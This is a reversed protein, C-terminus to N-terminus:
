SQEYSGTQDTSALLLSLYDDPPMPRYLYYGKASHCGWSKLMDLQEQTEIGEATAHTHLDRSLHILSRCLTQHTENNTLDSVFLRDIKIEEPALRNINQMSSYGAGFDDISLSFGAARLLSANEVAQGRDSIAATETIELVLRRPSIGYERCLDILGLAFNQQLLDRASINVALTTDQLAETHQQMWSLVSHLILQTLKYILGVNEALPIFDAPSVMGLTPHQWRLLVEGSNIKESALEVKPQIVFTFGNNKIAKSMEAVLMLQSHQHLQLDPQYQSWLHNSRWNARAALQAHQYLTTIDLRNLCGSAVGISFLQQFEIQELHITRNLVPELHEIIEQPRSTQRCLFILIGQDMDILCAQSINPLQHRIICPESELAQNVRKALIATAKVASGPGVAESLETIGSLQILVLHVSLNPLTEQHHLHNLFYNRNPLGSDPNTMLQQNKESELYQSRRTLSFSFCLLEILTSALLAYETFNNFPLQDRFVMGGIAAGVIFFSWAVLYLGAPTFGRRLITIGWYLSLISVVGQLISFPTAYYYQSMLLSIVVATAFALDALRRYHWWRPSRTRIQLFQLNFHFISWASLTYLTLIISGLFQNFAMPWLWPGFGQTVGLSLFVTLHFLIYFGYAPHRFLLFTITNHILLILLAGAAAAWIKFSLETLQDFQQPSMIRLPFLLPGDSAKRILVLSETDPQLEIPFWISAYPADPTWKQTDGRVWHHVVQGEQILYFDLEDIMINSLRLILETPTQVPPFEIKHWYAETSLDNAQHFHIRSFSLEHLAQEPTLPQTGEVATLLPESIYDPSGTFGAPVTYAGANASLILFLLIGAHIFLRLDLKGDLRKRCLIRGLYLTKKICAAAGM